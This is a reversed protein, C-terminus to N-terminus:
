NEFYNKIDRRSNMDLKKLIRSVVQKVYGYSYGLKTGIEENGYGLAILRLAQTETDSLKKALESLRVEDLRNATKIRLIIRALLVDKNFPKSLYDSAGIELGRIESESDASASLFIIPTNVYKSIKRINAFTEYGDMDPMMIDLLIVDVDSGQRLFTLAEDGSRALSVIYNDSLFDEASVLMAPDDDVVLIRYKYDM